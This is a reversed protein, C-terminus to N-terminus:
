LVSNSLHLSMDTFPRMIYFTKKRNKLDLRNEYTGFPSRVKRELLAFLLYTGDVRLNFVVM